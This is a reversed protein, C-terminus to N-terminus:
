RALSRSGGGGGKGRGWAVGGNGDGGGGEGEGGGGEGGHPSESGSNQLVSNVENAPFISFHLVARNTVVHWPVQSRQGSGSGDGGEAGVANDGGSSGGDGALAM